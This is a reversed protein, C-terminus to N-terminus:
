PQNFRAIVPGSARDGAHRHCGKCLDYKTPFPIMDDDNGATLLHCTQCEIRGDFLPLRPDIVRAIWNTSDGRGPVVRVGFPHSAHENFAIVAGETQDQWTSASQNSHCNLCTQSPSTHQLRGAAAHYLQAAKRHAASLSALDGRPDHCSRCVGSQLDGTIPQPVAGAPLNVLDTEHFSHCQLCRGRSDDHFSSNSLVLETPRHCSNCTETIAVTNDAPSSSGAHCGACRAQNHAAPTEAGVPATSILGTVLLGLTVWAQARHTQIATKM